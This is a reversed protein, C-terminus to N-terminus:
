DKHEQQLEWAEQEKDLRDKYHETIAEREHDPKNGWDEYSDQILTELANDPSSRKQIDRLDEAMLFKHIINVLIAKDNPSLGMAKDFYHQLAESSSSLKRDFLLDDATCQLAICLKKITGLEPNDSEGREIKSIQTMSVNSLEALETQTLGKKNRLKKLNSKLSMNMLEFQYHIIM